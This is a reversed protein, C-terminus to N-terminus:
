LNGQQWDILGGILLLLMAIAFSGYFTYVIARGWGNLKGIPYNIINQDTFPNRVPDVKKRRILHRPIFVAVFGAVTCAIGATWLLPMVQEM